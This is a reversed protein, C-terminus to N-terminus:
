QWGDTSRGPVSIRYITGKPCKNYNTVTIIMTETPSKSITVNEATVYHPLGKLDSWSPFKTYDNEILFDAMAAKTIAAADEIELCPDGSTTDSVPKQCFM